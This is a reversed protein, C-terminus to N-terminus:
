VPPELAAQMVAVVAHWREASYGEQVSIALQSLVISELGLAMVKPDIGARVQGMAQGYEIGGALAERLNVLSPLDLVDTAPLQERGSLVNRALPHSDVAGLVEEALQTIVHPLSDHDLFDILVNAALAVLEEADANVAAAFLAEKSPFYAYVAAPTVGVDRAVDSVSTRQYGDAAFRQVAATLLARRTREGKEV